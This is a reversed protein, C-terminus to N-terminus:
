DELYFRPDPGLLGDNSEVEVSPVLKGWMEFLNKKTVSKCDKRSVGPCRTKLYEKVAGVTPLKQSEKLLQASKLVATIHQHKAIKKEKEAAAKKRAIEKKKKAEQREKKMLLVREHEVERRLTEEKLESLRHVTNAIHADGVKEGLINSQFSFTM